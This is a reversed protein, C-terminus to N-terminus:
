KRRGFGGGTLQAPASNVLEPQLTKGLYETKAIYYITCHRQWSAVWLCSGDSSTGYAIGTSGDTLACTGFKSTGTATAQWSIGDESYLINHDGRGVAVWLCSGDSSTGYAIGNGGGGGFKSTGTATDQWSTGDKSYLINRTGKGVAVWLCSGDSSTGYAIGQGYGGTGNGNGFKSTGTATDQWSTGDKSYLIHHTTGGVAVWLCSGDSSTGYAIGIGIGFGGFKSTGTATVVQWSTGDKSYLINHTGSAM